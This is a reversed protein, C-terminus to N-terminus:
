RNVHDILPPSRAHDLQPQIRISALRGLSDYGCTAPEAGAQLFCALESQHTARNSRSKVEGVEFHGFTRREKGCVWLMFPQDSTQSALSLAPRRSRQLSGVSRMSGQPHPLSNACPSARNGPLRCSRQLAQRALARSRFDSARGRVVARSRSPSAPHTRAQGPHNPCSPLSARAGPLRRRLVRARRERFLM